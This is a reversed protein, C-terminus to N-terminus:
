FTYDYTKSGIAVGFTWEKLRISVETPFAGGIGVRDFSNLETGTLFSPNVCAM